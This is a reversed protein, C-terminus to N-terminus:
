NALQRLWGLLERQPQEYNTSFQHDGGEIVALRKPGAALQFLDKAQRLPVIDDKDGHIVLIPTSGLLRVCNLLDHRDFDAILKPALAARGTEDEVVVKEGRALRYYADGLSLQFTEKLNWPTSWLCLGAIDGDQAAFALAASGGMSRGLLLIRAGVCERCFEVVSAIEAIQQSLTEHPTFDFRVVSIGCGAVADSLLIARGGGDKSGRFGHCIVLVTDSEPDTAPHLVGSLSGSSSQISIEQM